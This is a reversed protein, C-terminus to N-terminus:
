TYNTIPRKNTAIVLLLFSLGDESVFESLFGEVKKEPQHNCLVVYILVKIISM